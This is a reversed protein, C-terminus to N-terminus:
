IAIVQVKVIFVQIVWLVSGQLQEEARLRWPASDTITFQTHRIHPLLHELVQTRDWPARHSLPQFAKAVRLRHLAFSFLLFTQKPCPQIHEKKKKKLFPIHLVVIFWDDNLKVLKQLFM